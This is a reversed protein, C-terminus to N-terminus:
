KPSTHRKEPTGRGGGFEPKGRAKGKYVLFGCGAPAVRGVFSGGGVISGNWFAGSALMALFAAGNIGAWVFSLLDPGAEPALQMKAAYRAERRSVFVGRPLFLHPSWGSYKKNHKQDQNPFGSNQQTKQNPFGNKQQTKQNPLRNQTPDKPQSIPKDFPFPPQKAITVALQPIQPPCTIYGIHRIGGAKLM